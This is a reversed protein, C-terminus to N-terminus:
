LLQQITDVVKSKKEDYASQNTLDICLDKEFFLYIFLTKPNHTEMSLM